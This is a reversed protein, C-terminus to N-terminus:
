SISALLLSAVLNRSSPAGDGGVFRSGCTMFLAPPDIRLDIFRGADAVVRSADLIVWKFPTATALVGNARGAAKAWVRDAGTLQEKAYPALSVLASAPHWSGWMAMGWSAIPGEHAAVVPDCRGNPGDALLLAVDLDQGCAGAGPSSAAAALRRQALLVTPSVGM